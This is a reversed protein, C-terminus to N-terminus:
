GLVTVVILDGEIFAVLALDVGRLDRGDIRLDGHQQVEVMRPDELVSYIDQITAGREDLRLFVHAVDAFSVRGAKALRVVEDRLDSAM